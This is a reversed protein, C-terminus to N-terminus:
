QETDTIRFEEIAKKITTNEDPADVSGIFVAPTGRLRYIDWSFENKPMPRISCPSNNKQLEPEAGETRRAGREVRRTFTRRTPQRRSAATSLRRTRWERLVIVFSRM